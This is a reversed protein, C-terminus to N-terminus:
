TEGAHAPISGGHDVHQRRRRRKGRMRPSPGVHDDEELNYIGNGGCARPHVGAQCALLQWRATEGAHAPISGERGVGAVRNGPKGRMRPSPGLDSTTRRCESGDVPTSSM